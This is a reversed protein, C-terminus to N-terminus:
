ASWMRERLGSRTRCLGTQQGDLGLWAHVFFMPDWCVFFAGQDHHAPCQRLWFRGQSTHREFSGERSEHGRHSPEILLPDRGAGEITPTQNGDDFCLTAALFRAQACATLFPGLGLLSLRGDQRLPGRAFM